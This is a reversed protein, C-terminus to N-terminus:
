PILLIKGTTRRGALERHAQQADQLPYHHQIRLKLSGQAIMNLVSSARTQLEERTAVYHPLSPRVLCLSGKQM